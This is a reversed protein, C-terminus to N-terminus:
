SHVFTFVTVAGTISLFLLWQSFALAKEWSSFWRKLILSIFFGVLSFLIAAFFIGPFYVLLMGNLLLPFWCSGAGSPKQEPDGPPNRLSLDDM